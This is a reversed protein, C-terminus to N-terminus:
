IKIGYIDYYSAYINEDKKICRVTFVSYKNNSSLYTDTEGDVIDLQEWGTGANKAFIMYREAGEVKRWYIRIGGSERSAKLLKPAELLTFNMGEKDYDSTYASEDMDMCRITYNRSEGCVINEDVFETDTGMVTSLQIWAGRNSKYFIRYKEAGEVSQWSLTVGKQNAVIKNIKPIQLAHQKIKEVRSVRYGEMNYDTLYKDDESIGRVTYTCDIRNDYSEDIFTDNLTEGIINWSGNDIKKFVRYKDVLRVRKIKIEACKNETQISIIDPNSHEYQFTKKGDSRAYLEKYYDLKKERDEIAWYYIRFHYQVDAVMDPITVSTMDRNYIWVVQLWNNDEEIELSYETSSEFQNWKLILNCM